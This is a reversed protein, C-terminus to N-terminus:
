EGNHKKAYELMLDRLVDSIKKYNAECAQAFQDYLSPQVQFIVQRDMKEKEAKMSYYLTTGM